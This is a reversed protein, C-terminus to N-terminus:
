TPHIEFFRWSWAAVRYVYMYPRYIYKDLEFIMVFKHQMIHYFKEKKAGAISWKNCKQKNKTNRETIYLSWMTM